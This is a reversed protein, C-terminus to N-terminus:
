IQDRKLFGESCQVMLWLPELFNLSKKFSIRLAEVGGQAAAAMRREVLIAHALILAASEQAATMETRSELLEASRMDVKLEKYFV